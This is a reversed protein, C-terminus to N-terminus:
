FYFDALLMQHYMGFGGRIATKGSGGPDWAFGLRPAFNNSPVSYNPSEARSIDDLYVNIQSQKGYREYARERDRGDLYEFMDSAFYGFTDYSVEPCFHNISKEDAYPEEEAIVARLVKWKRELSAAQDRPITTFGGKRGLADLTEYYRPCLEAHALPCRPPLNRKRSEASYWAFDAKERPMKAPIKM